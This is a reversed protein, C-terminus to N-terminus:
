LNPWGPQWLQGLRPIGVGYSLIRVYLDESVRGYDGVSSVQAAILKVTKTRAEGINPPEMTLESIM